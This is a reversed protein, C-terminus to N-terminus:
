HNDTLVITLASNEDLSVFFHLSVIVHLFFRVCGRFFVFFPPFHIRSLKPLESCFLFSLSAYQLIKLQTVEGCNSFFQKLVAETVPKAINTVYVSKELNFSRMIAQNNLYQNQAELPLITAMKWAFAFLLLLDCGAENSQPFLILL